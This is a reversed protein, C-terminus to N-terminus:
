WWRKDVKSDCAKKREDCISGIDQRECKANQWLACGKEM